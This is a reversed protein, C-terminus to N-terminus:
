FDEHWMAMELELRLVADCALKVLKVAEAEKNRAQKLTGAQFFTVRCSDSCFRQNSRYPLFEKGCGVRACIRKKQIKRPLTYGGM